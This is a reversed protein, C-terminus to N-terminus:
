DRRAHVFLRDPRPRYSATEITIVELGAATLTAHLEPETWPHMVFTFDATEVRGSPRTLSFSEKSVLMPEDWETENDFILTGEPTVVRKRTCEHIRAAAADRDRVDLILHGGPTLHGALCAVASRRDEPTIIDNLVGRCTVVDFEHGLRFHTIDVLHTRVGPCRSRAAALLAESADVLEVTFGDQLFGEAQRGTGCGADLLRLGDLADYGIADEVAEVWPAIPDTILSDYASAYRAYFPRENAIAASDSGV